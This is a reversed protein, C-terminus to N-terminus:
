FSLLSLKKITSMGISLSKSIKAIERITHHLSEPCRKHSIKYTMVSRDFCIKNEVSMEPCSWTYKIKAKKIIKIARTQVRQLAALKTKSLSGWAIDGYRLQSEVLKYHVLCLQSQPLITKLRKLTRIWTYQTWQTTSNVKGQFTKM